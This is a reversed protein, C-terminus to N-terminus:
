WEDGTLGYLQCLALTSRLKFMGSRLRSGEQGHGGLADEYDEEVAALMRDLESVSLRLYIRREESAELAHAIMGRVDDDAIERYHAKVTERLKARSFNVIIERREAEAM